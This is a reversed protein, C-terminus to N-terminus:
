SLSMLGSAVTSTRFRGTAAPQTDAQHRVLVRPGTWIVALAPQSSCYKTYITVNHGRTTSVNHLSTLVQPGSSPDGLCPPSTGLAPSLESEAKVALYYGM